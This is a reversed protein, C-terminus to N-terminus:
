HHGYGNEMTNTIIRLQTKKREVEEEEEGEGEEDDDHPRQRLEAMACLTDKDRFQIVCQRRAIVGNKYMMETSNTM